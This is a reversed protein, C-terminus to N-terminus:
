KALIKQKELNFEAQTLAGADLLNKLKILEDAKGGRPPQTKNKAKIKSEVFEYVKDMQRNLEAPKLSSFTFRNENHTGAGAGGPRDNSGPFTLEMFGAMVGCRKYQVSTIDSFLIVKEGSLGRSIFGRVGEQTIVLRDDYVDLVDGSFSKVHYVRGAPQKKSGGRLGM